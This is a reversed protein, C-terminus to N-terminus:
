GNELVARYRLRNARLRDLAANVEDMPFREIRPAVGHRASFELMARIEAPSGIASGVVGRQGAILPFAPFHVESAPVGVICLTGNPKLAGILDAWPLDASVTSLLFDCSGAHAELGGSMDVFAHAGLGMAEDRKAPSHSFATVHAGMARGYQLALHGLGGIGIVGLRTGEGVGHRALPAFVTIGACLLPAAHESSLADLIPFAFRSDVRIRDAFGGERGVCTPQASACLNEYGSACTECTLDAGAQWGVGVRQGPTLGSVGSGAQTVTGVVEHGPVLPYASMGWEDEILHLDSHCIGCHTVAIEVDNPGLDPPTFRYPQLREGASMAAYADIESSNNDSPVSDSMLSEM